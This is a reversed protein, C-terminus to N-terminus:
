TEGGAQPPHHHSHEIHAQLWIRRERRRLRKVVFEGNLSAVVIQGSRPTISRDVIALDGNHIGARRMSDGSVRVIFTAAPRAILRENLDLKGEVYDAAPSPFGAAPRPPAYLPVSRPSPPSSIAFM